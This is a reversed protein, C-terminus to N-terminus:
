GGGEGRAPLQRSSPARLWFALLRPGLVLSDHAMRTLLATPAHNVFRRTSSGTSCRIITAAPTSNRTNVISVAV